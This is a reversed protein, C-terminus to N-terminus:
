QPQRITIRDDPSLFLLYPIPTHFRHMYLLFPRFSVISEPTVRSRIHM